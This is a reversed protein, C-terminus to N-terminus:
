KLRSNCVMFPFRGTDAFWAASGRSTDLKYEAEKSTGDPFFFRAHVCNCTESIVRAKAGNKDKARMVEAAKAIRAACEARFQQRALADAARKENRREFAEQAADSRVVEPEDYSPLFDIREHTFPTDHVYVPELELYYDGARNCKLEVEPGRWYGDDELELLEANPRYFFARHEPRKYYQPKKAQVIDIARM